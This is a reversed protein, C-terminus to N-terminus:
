NYLPNWNTQWQVKYGSVAGYNMYEKIFLRCYYSYNKEPHQTRYNVKFVYGYGVIIEAKDSYDTSPIEKIQTLSNVKGVNVVDISLFIPDSTYGPYTQDLEGYVYGDCLRIYTHGKTFQAGMYIGDNCEEITMYTNADEGSSVGDVSSKNGECAPFLFTVAALLFLPLWRKQITKM